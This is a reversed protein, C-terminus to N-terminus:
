AAENNIFKIVGGEYHNEIGLIVDTSSLDDTDTVDPWEANEVYKRMRAITQPDILYKM